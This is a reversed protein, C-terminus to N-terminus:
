EAVVELAAKSKARNQLTKVHASVSIIIGFLIGTMFISTGGKSVFPLPQGTVFDGLAVGVSMNIVAQLFILLSCGITMMAYVMSESKYAIMVSRWLICLYSFILLLGVILGLEELIISFIYDSFAQPLRYRERGAAPGKGVVGGGSVAMKAHSVQYNEDTVVFNLKPDDEETKGGVISKEVRSVWTHLRHLPTGELLEAPVTKGVVGLTLGLGLFLGIIKMFPKAQIGGTLLMCFSVATLLILGSLNEAGIPLISVVYVGLLVWWGAKTPSLGKPTSYKGIWFALFIVYFVKVAESWQIGFLTRRAGNVMAGFAMTAWLFIVSVVAALAIFVIFKSSFLRKVGIHVVLLISALGGLELFIHKYFQGNFDGNKVYKLPMAQISSYVEIFSVALLVAIALWIVLDGLFLKKFFANRDGM